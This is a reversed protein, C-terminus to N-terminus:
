YIVTDEEAVFVIEGGDAGDFMGLTTTEDKGQQKRPTDPDPHPPQPQSQPQPPDLMVDNTSHEKLVGDTSEAIVHESGGVTETVIPTETENGTDPSVEEEEKVNAAAGDLQQQDVQEPPPAGSEVLQHSDHFRKLELAITSEAEAIQLKIENEEEPKLEWPKYFLHPEAKTRLFHAMSLLNSHHTHMSQEAFKRQEVQRVAKLDELEKKKKEDYEESQLKLKAQQKKEIDLRRKQATSPSSQSLTGLLAGFLRQGRKREEAQGSKRRENVSNPPHTARTLERAFSIKNNDTVDSSLRPRKSVSSDISSQRRKTPPPAPPIAEDIDEPVIVASAITLQEDAM